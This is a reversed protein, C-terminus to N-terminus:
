LISYILVLLTSQAIPSKKGRHDNECGIILEEVMGEFYLDANGGLHTDIQMRDVKYNDDLTESTSQKRLSQAVMASKMDSAESSHEDNQSEESMYVKQKSISKSRCTAGWSILIRMVEMVEEKAPPSLPPENHNILASGQAGWSILLSVIETSIKAEAMRLPTQGTEDVANCHAGQNLLLTALELYKNIAAIHM